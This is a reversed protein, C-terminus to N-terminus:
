GRSLETRAPLRRELRHVLHRRRGRAVPGITRVRRFGQREWFALARANAELVGIVLRPAGRERALGEVHALLLPGLGNGRHAPDVLM